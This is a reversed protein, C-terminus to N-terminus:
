KAKEVKPQEKSFGALAPKFQELKENGSYYSETAITKNTEPDKRVVTKGSVGCISVGYIDKGNDGYLISAGGEGENGPLQNFENVSKEFSSRSADDRNINKRATGSLVIKEGNFSGIGESNLEHGQKVTPTERSETPGDNPMSWGEIQNSISNAGALIASNGLLANGGTSASGLSVGAGAVMAASKGALRGLEKPQLANKAFNEAKDLSGKLRESLSKDNNAKVTSKVGNEEVAGAISSALPKGDAGVMKGNKESKNDFRSLLAGSAVAGMLNTFAGGTREGVADAGSGLNMLTTRFFKIMPIFSVLMVFREIVSLNGYAAINTFILLMLATFSQLFINSLLEKFWTGAIKKAAGGAAFLSIFFPSLGILLSLTVARILFTVNLLIQVFVCAFEMIVGVLGGGSSLSFADGAPAMDRIASVILDNFSLLIYLAPMFLSIGIVVIFLDKVGEMLDAKMSPTIAAINRKILIRIISIGLVILSLVTAFLNLVNVANMWNTPMIGMFYNSRAGTNFFLDNISFVGLFSTLSSLIFSLFKHIAGSLLDEHAGVTGPNQVTSGKAYQSSAMYLVYGWSLGKTLTSIDVSTQYQGYLAQGEQYGKPILYALTTTKGSFNKIVVYDKYTAGKAIDKILKMDDATAQRISWKLKEMYTYEKFSTTNSSIVDFGSNSVAMAMKFYSTATELDLVKRGATSVPKLIFSIASNFSSTLKAGVSNAQSYDNATGDLDAMESFTYPHESLFSGLSIMKGEVSLEFGTFMTKTATTLKLLSDNTSLRSYSEETKYFGKDQTTLSSFTRNETNYLFSLFYQNKGYAYVPSSSALFVFLIASTLIIKKILKFM